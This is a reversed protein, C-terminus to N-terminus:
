LFSIISQLIQIMSKYVPYKMAKPFQSFCLEQRVLNLFHIDRLWTNGTEKQVDQNTTKLAYQICHYLNESCSNKGVNLRALLNTGKLM